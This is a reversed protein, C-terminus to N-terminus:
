CTALHNACLRIAGGADVRLGPCRLDASCTTSTMSLDISVATGFPSPRGDPDFDATVDPATVSQVFTRTRLVVPTAPITMDLVQVTAGSTSLRVVTNRKVAESQAMLTESYLMNGGERLRSNVVYDGMYPAAATVLVAMVAVGVMLEVLTFGRELDHGHGPPLLKARRRIGGPILRTLRRM